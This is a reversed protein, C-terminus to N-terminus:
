VFKVNIQMKGVIEKPKVLLLNYWTPVLFHSVFLFLFKLIFFLTTNGTGSMMMMMIMM